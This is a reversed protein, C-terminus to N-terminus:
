GMIFVLAGSPASLDDRIFDKNKPDFNNKKLSFPNHFEPSVGVLRNQWTRNATESLRRRTKMMDLKIM